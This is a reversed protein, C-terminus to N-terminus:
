NLNVTNRFHSHAVINTGHIQSIVASVVMGVSSKRPKRLRKYISLVPIIVSVEGRRRM